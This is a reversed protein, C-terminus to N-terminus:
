TSFTVNTAVYFIRVANSGSIMIQRGTADLVTDTTNSITNALTITGDCAFTVTGGGIMATRLDAETCNTVTGAGMGTWPLLLALGALATLRFPARLRRRGNRIQQRGHENEARTAEKRDSQHTKRLDETIITTNKM